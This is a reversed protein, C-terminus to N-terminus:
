EEDLNDGRLSALNPREAIVLDSVLEEGARQLRLQVKKGPTQAAIQALMITTNQIQVKDLQTIIDGPRLGAQDAPSQSIVSTVLAGQVDGLNFSNALAPTIDQAAVGIWGRIVSGRKILQEVVQRVTNEPIAFGIGQSGGNKSYIASNIGVLEGFINVLAGGSNGPNIAADTQIFNEFTSIGLKNRGLASVIGMTLTQGVGFPNGAALVVDGVQMNEIHGFVIPHLNDAEIHLVALDTEPDSGVLTAEFHRNDALAVQIIGAAEVVHYNTVIYGAKSLIVGSGLSNVTNKGGPSQPPLSDNLTSSNLQKTTYINVMAPLTHQAAIRYGQVPTPGVLSSPPPLVQEVVLTPLDSRKHGFWNLKALWAPHWILNLLGIVVLVLVLITTAQTFVFWSKKLM